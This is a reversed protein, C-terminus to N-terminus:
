LGCTQIIPGDYQHNNLDTCYAALCLSFRSRWPQHMLTVARTRLKGHIPYAIAQMRASGTAGEASPSPAAKSRLEHLVALTDLGLSDLSLFRGRGKGAPPSVCAWSARRHVFPMLTRGGFALSGGRPQSRRRLCILSYIPWHNAPAARPWEGNREAHTSSRWFRALRLGHKDPLYLHTSKVHFEPAETSRRM